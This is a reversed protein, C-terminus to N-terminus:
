NYSGVFMSLVEDMYWIVVAMFSNVSGIGFVFSLGSECGVVLGVIFDNNIVNLIFNGQLYVIIGDNILGSNSYMDIINVIFLGVNIFFVINFLLVNMFFQVCVDNQFIAQNRIGEVGMNGLVGFNIVGVNIFNGGLFNGIESSM